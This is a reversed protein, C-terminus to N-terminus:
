FRLLGEAHLLEEMQWRLGLSGAFVALPAYIVGGISVANAGSVDLPICLDGKCIALRGSGDLTKVEAGVAESFAQLPVLVEGNKLRPAPTLSVPRDDIYFKHVSIMSSVEKNHVCAACFFLNLAILAVTQQIWNPKVSFGYNRLRYSLSNTSKDFLIRKIRKNTTM